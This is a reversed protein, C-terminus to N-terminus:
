YRRLGIVRPRGTGPDRALHVHVPAFMRDGRRTVIRVIMYGDHHSPLTLGDVCTRGDEGPPALRRWGVPKGDYDFGEAAYHTGARPELRHKLTLDDFCLRAEAQVQFRDLPNVRNFWYRATARQRETLVRIMYEASRPSSYRAEEVVARIQEPTFRMLIKAGWFNDFRDSDAFPLYPFSVVFKGPDYGRASFLGIEAVDPQRLEEWPRVWLGFTPLTMLMYKIDFFHTYGVTKAKDIYGMVGLAKGFDIQYHVVHRREPDWM